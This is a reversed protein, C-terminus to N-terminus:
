RVDNCREETGYRPSAKMNQWAFGTADRHVHFTFMTTRGTGFPDDYTVWVTAVLRTTQSFDGGIMILTTDKPTLPPRGDRKEIVPPTTPCPVDKPLYEMGLGAYYAGDVNFAPANGANRVWVSVMQDSFFGRTSTVEFDPVVWARQANVTFQNARDLLTTQRAMTCYQGVGVATLVFTFFLMWHNARISLREASNIGSWRRARRRKCPETIYRAWARQSAQKYERYRGRIQQWRQNLNV